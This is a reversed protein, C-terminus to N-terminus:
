IHNLMHLVMEWASNLIFAAILIPAIGTTLYQSQAEHRGYAIGIVKSPTIITYIELFKLVLLIVNIYYLCTPFSYSLPLRRLSLLFFGPISLIDLKM